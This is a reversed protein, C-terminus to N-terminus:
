VRSLRRPEAEARELAQLGIDDFKANFWAGRLAKNLDTRGLKAVGAAQTRLLFPELEEVPDAKGVSQDFLHLQKQIEPQTTPPKSFGTQGLAHMRAVAAQLNTM